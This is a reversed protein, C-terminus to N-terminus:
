FGCNRKLHVMNSETKIFCSYIFGVFAIGYSCIYPYDLFFLKGIEGFFCVSDPRVLM